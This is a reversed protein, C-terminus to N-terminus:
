RDQALSDWLSAELPPKLDLSDARLITKIRERITDFKTGDQSMLNVVESFRREMHWPLSKQTKGKGYSAIDNHWLTSLVTGAALRSRMGGEPQAGFLLLAQDAVTGQALELADEEFKGDESERKEGTFGELWLQHSLMWAAIGEGRDSVDKATATPAASSDGKSFKVAKMSGLTQSGAVDDTLRALFTPDDSWVSVGMARSIVEPDITGAVAVCKEWLGWLVTQKYSFFTGQIPLGDRMAIWVDARGFGFPICDMPVLLPVPRTTLATGDPFGWDRARQHAQTLLWFGALLGGVGHGDSAAMVDDRSVPCRIHRFDKPAILGDNVAEALIGGLTIEWLCAALPELTDSMSAARLGFDSVKMSGEHVWKGEKRCLSLSLGDRYGPLLPLTTIQHTSIVAAM